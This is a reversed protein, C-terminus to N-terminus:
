NVESDALFVLDDVYLLMIIDHLGDINVGTIARNRFFKKIDSIFLAFLLPSLTEGQLVGQFIDFSRTYNGCESGAMFSFTFCSRVSAQFGCFTSTLTFISNSRGRNKRLGNQCEPIVAHEECWAELRGLIITTFI